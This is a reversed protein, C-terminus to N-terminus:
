SAWPEPYSHQDLSKQTEVLKSRRNRQISHVAKLFYMGGLFMATRGTWLIPDGPAGGFFVVALGVGTLRLALFYWYLASSKSGSLFYRRTFLTSSAALLVVAGRPVSMRLPTQGVGPVFFLPTVGELAAVAFISTFALCWWEHPGIGVKSSSSGEEVVSRQVM